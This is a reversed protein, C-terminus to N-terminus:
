KGFFRQHFYEDFPLVAVAKTGKEKEKEEKCRHDLDSPTPARLV